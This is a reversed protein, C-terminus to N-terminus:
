PAPTETVEAEPTESAPPLQPTASPPLVMFTDIVDRLAQYPSGEDLSLLDVEGVPLRIDAIAYRQGGPTQLLALLGAIPDGESDRDSYSLLYGEGFARAAAQSSLVQAGPHLKNALYAQAAELSELAALDVTRLFLRAQSVNDELVAPSGPNGSVQTWAPHRILFGQDPDSYSSFTPTKGRQDEYGIFTPSVLADVADLLAPYNSPVVYRIMYLWDGEMWAVQRGVFQTQNASLDFNIIIQEGTITRGTETFGDYDGWASVLFSDNMLEDSVAQLDPYNVGYRLLAEIVSLREINRFSLRAMAVDTEFTSSFTNWGVPTTIQFLGNIQFSPEANLTLQPGDPEPSPVIFPTPTLTRAPIPTANPDVTQVTTTSPAIATVLTVVIISLGIALLFLYQPDQWRPRPAKKAM